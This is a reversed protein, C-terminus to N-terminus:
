DGDLSNFGPTLGAAPAFQNQLLDRLSALVIAAYLLKQRRDADALAPRLDGDASTLATQLNAFEFAVSRAIWARESPLLELMDSVEVFRQLAVASAHMYGLAQGSANYPARGANAAEPTEGLAPLLRHDRLQELGTLAARLIETMVEGPSRYVPNDPGPRTLLETWRGGPDWAEAAQAAIAEMNRAVALALACRYPEPEPATSLAKPGSYLLSVLAPLGQVAASQKALTDPQLMSEDGRALFQRLQRAGTGHVDPWFAFREYSGEQAMPGFRLFDVGAWAILVDSLAANIDSRNQASPERCLLELAGVMALADDGLQRYAPAIYGAVTSEAIAMLASDEAARAPLALTVSLAAALVLLRSRM